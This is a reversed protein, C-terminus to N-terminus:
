PVPASYRLFLGAAGSVLGTEHLATRGSGSTYVLEDPVPHASLEVRADLSLRPALRIAADLAATAMPRVLVRAHDTDFGSGTASLVAARLGACGRPVLWVLRTLEFCVHAGALVASLQLVATTDPVAVERPAIWAGELEVRLPPADVALRLAPAAWPSPLFGVGVIAGAAASLEARSLEAARPPLRLTARPADLEFLMAVVVALPEDLAVCSQSQSAVERV